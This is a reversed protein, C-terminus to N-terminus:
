RLKAMEAFRDKLSGYLKRYVDYHAAYTKVQKGPKTTQTVKITKRCAEEVSKWVGTGVGALLAVGFAGGEASNTITLPADYIDAQMSRWLASKTGGGTARIQKVPIKMQDRMIGLMDRMGFTVGELLARVMADRGTRLSLGIWAGRADADPHPCREGSLYPLFFLGESGPPIKSAGDVLLDFVNQKSKKALAHEYAALQDGYWQFSGAASLMCGYVVWKGPVASCMTAVRGLVADQDDIAATDAHACLVGSTGLSASLLGTEVVGNGIAGSMVDGAGAVVPTGAKLGLLKAASSTLTGTIEPSEYLRPLLAKDIKLKGLLEDSWTRSPQHILGMGSGDAVDTAYEGTMQLRIYDKPLIIKALKDYNKPENDRLWLIKPSTYGAMALNGVMRLLSKEGGALETIKACQAVTRQDNWLLANRIVKGAKDLFVSGHMQGSLGIGAVQDPKIKAKKIAAKTAAVTATWWEDPRQETWGPKPTLLTHDASATALINGKYDTVLAKTGSTGVDIGLLYSMIRRPNLSRLTDLKPSIDVPHIPRM